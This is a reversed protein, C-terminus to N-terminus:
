LEEAGDEIEYRSLKTYLGQRSVGLMRAAAARNGDTAELAAEIYHREILGIASAVMDKLRARGLQDTMSNLFRLLKVSQTSTELRRSVDRVFLVIFTRGKDTRMAASIECETKGGLSGHLTTPFLRIAGSQRLSDVLMKMDGGPRGLWRSLPAGMIPALASEQILGLFSSNAHLVTGNTDLVAIGDPSFELFQLVTLAGVHPAEDLEGKEAVHALRVLLLSGFEQELVSAQLLYSEGSEQTRVLIRPAKGREVARRLTTDAVKRDANEIFELFRRGAVEDYDHLALGLAAVAAPNAEAITLEEPRLLLLVDSSAEYLARYRTELERMQWYSREMSQRAAALRSQLQAVSRVDRGIALYGAGSERRITVFEFPAELGSPFGQNVRFFPSVGTEPTGDILQDLADRDVGAVTESWPRGIWRDVDEDSVDNAATAETVVGNSDLLVMLDAQVSHRAMLVALRPKGRARLATQPM